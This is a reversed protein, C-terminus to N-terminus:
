SLSQNAYGAAENHIPLWSQTAVGNYSPSGFFHGFNSVPHLATRVQPDSDTPYKAVNGRVLGEKAAQYGRQEPSPLILLRTRPDSAIM